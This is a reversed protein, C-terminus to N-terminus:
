TFIHTYKGKLLGIAAENSISFNDLSQVIQVLGSFHVGMHDRCASCISQLSNAAATALPPQQLCFLLFNLVPETSFLLLNILGMTLTILLLM